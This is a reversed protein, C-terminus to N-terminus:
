EGREREAREKAVLEDLAKEDPMPFTDLLAQGKWFISLGAWEPHLPSPCHIHVTVYLPEVMFCVGIKRGTDVSRDWQARIRRFKRAKTRNAPM